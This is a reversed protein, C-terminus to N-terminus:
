VWFQGYLVLFTAIQLLQEAHRLKLRRGEWGCTRCGRIVVYDVVQVKNARWLWGLGLLSNLGQSVQFTRWGALLTGIAKIQDHLISLPGVIEQTTQGQLRLRCLLLSEQVRILDFGEWRWVARLVFSVFLLDLFKYIIALSLMRARVLWFKLFTAMILQLADIKQFVFLALTLSEQRPFHARVVDVLLLRGISALGLLWQCIHLSLLRWLCSLSRPALYRCGRLNLFILAFRGCRFLGTVPLLMSVWLRRGLEDVVM